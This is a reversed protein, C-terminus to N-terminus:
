HFVYARLEFSERHPHDVTDPDVFASHPNRGAVSADSDFSKFLTVIDPTQGYRYYFRHRPNAVVNFTSGERYPYILKTSILDEQPISRSDAVAFPDKYVPKLPRWVHIIQMRGKLLLYQEAEPGIDLCAGEVAEKPTIDVHVVGVPGQEVKTPDTPPKRHIPNFCFVHKGGTVEKLMREVEPFYETKVVEPDDFNSVKTKHYHFKFGHEDLNYLLEDGAVDHITVPVSEVNADQSFQLSDKYTDENTPPVLAQTAGYAQAFASRSSEIDFM